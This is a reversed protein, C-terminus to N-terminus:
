GWLILQFSVSALIGAELQFLINLSPFSHGGQGESYALPKLYHGQKYLLFSLSPLLNRSIVQGLALFHCFEVGAM